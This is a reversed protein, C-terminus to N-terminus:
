QGPETESDILMLDPERSSQIGILAELDEDVDAGLHVAQQYHHQALSQDEANITILLRALNYHAEHSGPNIDIAREIGRRAARFDGMGFYATGLMLFAKANSPLEQVLQELVMVADVFQGQQCQATAILMRLEIDDPQRKIADILLKRAEESKGQKILEIANTREGETVLGQTTRLEAIEISNGSVPVVPASVNTLPLARDGTILVLERRCYAARSTSSNKGWTPHKDALRTYEEAAEEYFIAAQVYKKADRSQDASKLLYHAYEIEEAPPRAGSAEGYAACASLQCAIACVKLCTTAFRKM